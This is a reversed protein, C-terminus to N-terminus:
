DGEAAPIEIVAYVVGDELLEKPDPRGASGGITGDPRLYQHVRAIQRAQDDRYSLIQSLTCFPDGSEPPNPHGEEEPRQWLDGFRARDWYKGDNFRRRLEEASVYEFQVEEIDGSQV